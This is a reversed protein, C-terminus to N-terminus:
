AAIWPVIYYDKYLTTNWFDFQGPKLRIVINAKMNDGSIFSPIQTGQAGAAEGSTGAISISMTYCSGSYSISSDTSVTCYIGIEGVAAEDRSKQLIFFVTTDSSSSGSISYYTSVPSSLTFEIELSCEIDGATNTFPTGYASIHSANAYLFVQTLTLLLLIKLSKM